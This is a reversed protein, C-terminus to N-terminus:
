RRYVFWLRSDVAVTDSLRTTRYSFSCRQRYGVVLSWWSFRLLQLVECRLVVAVPLRCGLVFDVIWRFMLRASVVCTICLIRLLLIPISLSLSHGLQFQFDKPPLTSIGFDSVTAPLKQTGAVRRAVLLIAAAAVETRAKANLYVV